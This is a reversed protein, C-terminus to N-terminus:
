KTHFDKVRVDLGQWLESPPASQVGSSIGGGGRARARKFSHFDARPGMTVEHFCLTFWAVTHFYQQCSNDRWKLSIVILLVMATIQVEEEEEAANNIPEIGKEM